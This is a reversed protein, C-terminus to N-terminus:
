GHGGPSFFFVGLVKPKLTVMKVTKQNLMCIEDYFGWPILLTHNNRLAM